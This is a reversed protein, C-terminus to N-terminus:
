RMWGNLITVLQWSNGEIRQYIFVGGYACLSGCNYTRKIIAYKKDLSFLPLSYYYRNPKQRIPKATIRAKSIRNQWTSDKIAEFQQLVYERDESNFLTDLGNKPQYLYMMRDLIDHKSLTDPVIFNLSDWQLMQRNIKRRRSLIPEEHYGDSSTVEWDMFSCIENDSILTSYTQASCPLQSFLLAVTLTLFLKM